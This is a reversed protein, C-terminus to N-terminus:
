SMDLATSKGYIWGRRIWLTWRVPVGAFGQDEKGNYRYPQDAAHGISRVRLKQGNGDYLYEATVTVGDAASKVDFREPLNLMDWAAAFVATLASRKM